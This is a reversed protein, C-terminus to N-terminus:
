LEIEMDEILCSGDCETEDWILTEELADSGIEDLRKLYRLAVRFLYDKRKEGKQLKIEMNEM